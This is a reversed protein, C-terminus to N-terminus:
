LFVPFTDSSSYMRIFSKLALPPYLYEGILFRERSNADSRWLQYGCIKGAIVVAPPKQNFGYGSGLNSVKAVQLEPVYSCCPQYFKVFLDLGKAVTFKRKINEPEIVLMEGVNCHFHVGYQNVAM